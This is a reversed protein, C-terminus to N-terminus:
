SLFRVAPIQTEIIKQLPAVHDLRHIYIIDPKIETIQRLLDVQPFAADFISLWEADTKGAVDYLLTSRINKENMLRVTDQIYRECGGVLAAHENIWLIHM